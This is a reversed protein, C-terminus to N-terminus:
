FDATPGAAFLLHGKPAACETRCLGTGTTGEAPLASAQQWGLAAGVLMGGWTGRDGRWGEGLVKQLDTM